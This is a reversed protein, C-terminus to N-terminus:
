RFSKTPRQHFPLRCGSKNEVGVSSALECGAGKASHELGRLPQLAHTALAVAPVIGRCLAEERREFKFPRHGRSPPVECISFWFDEPEDLAVVVLSSKMGM